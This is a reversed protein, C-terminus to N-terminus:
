FVVTAPYKAQGIQVMTLPGHEITETGWSRAAHILVGDVLEDRPVARLWTQGEIADDHDAVAHIKFRSIQRRVGDVLLEGGHPSERMLRRVRTEEARFECRTDAPDSSDLLEAKTGPVPQAGLLTRLDQLMGIALAHTGLAVVRHQRHEEAATKASGLQDSQFQVLNLHPLTM